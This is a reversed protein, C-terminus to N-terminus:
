KEWRAWRGIGGLIILAAGRVGARTTGARENERDPGALSVPAEGAGIGAGVYFTFLM